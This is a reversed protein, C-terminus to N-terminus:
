AEGKKPFRDKDRGKIKSLSTQMAEDLDVDLTNAICILCFLIDGIEGVLDDPPETSKKIKDGYRHNLIRALEGVEETLRALNSLPTWYPKQFHRVLDDVEVQYRGLANSM